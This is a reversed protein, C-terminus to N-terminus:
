TQSSFQKVFINKLNKMQGGNIDQAVGHALCQIVTSASDTGIYSLTSPWTIFPCFVSIPWSLTLSVLRSEITFGCYSTHALPWTDTSTQSPNESAFGSLSLGSSLSPALWPFPFLRPLLLPTLAGRVSVQPRQDTESLNILLKQFRSCPFLGGSRRSCKHLHLLQPFGWLHRGGTATETKKVTEFSWM